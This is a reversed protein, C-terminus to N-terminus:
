EAKKRQKWAFLLAFIGFIWGMGGIIESLGPGRDREAALLHRISDTHADLARDIIAALEEASVGVPRTAPAAGTASAQGSAQASPSSPAAREGAHLEAASLQWRAQHGEGAHLLLRLDVPNRLLEASLPFRARGQSDTAGQVLLKGSHADFIEVRANQAPRSKSFRGDVVIAGREVWAFLSVRHALAPQATVLLILLLSAYFFGSLCRM